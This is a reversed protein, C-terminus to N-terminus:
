VDFARQTRGLWNISIAHPRWPDSAAGAALRLFNADDVHVPKSIFALSLAVILAASGLIHSSSLPNSGRVGQMGHM